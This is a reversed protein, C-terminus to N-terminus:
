TVHLCPSRQDRSQSTGIRQQIATHLVAHSRPGAGMVRGQNPRKGSDNLWNPDDKFSMSSTM